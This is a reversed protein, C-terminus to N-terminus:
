IFLGLFLIVSIVIYESLLTLLSYIIFQFFSYSKYRISGCTGIYHYLTQWIGIISGLFYRCKTLEFLDSPLIVRPEVGINM